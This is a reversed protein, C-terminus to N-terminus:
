FDRQRQRKAIRRAKLLDLSKRVSLDREEDQATPAPEAKQSSKYSLFSTLSPVTSITSVMPTSAPEQSAALPQHRLEADPFIEEPQFYPEEDMPAKAIAKLAATTEPELGLNLDLWRFNRRLNIRNSEAMWNRLSPSALQFSADDVNAMIQAFQETQIQTPMWQQISQISNANTTEKRVIAALLKQLRSDPESQMGCMFQVLPLLSTIIQAARIVSYTEPSVTMTYLEAALANARTAIQEVMIRQFVADDTAKFTSAWEAWTTWFSEDVERSFFGNFWQLALIIQPSMTDMVMKRIQQAKIATRQETYALSEQIPTVFPWNAKGITEIKTIREDLQAFMDTMIDQDSSSDTEMPQPNGRAQLTLITDKADTMLKNQVEVKEVM